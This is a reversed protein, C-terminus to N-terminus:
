RHRARYNRCAARQGDIAISRRIAFLLARAAAASGGAADRRRPPDVPSSVINLFISTALSPDGPASAAKFAAISRATLYQASSCMIETSSIGCRASVISSTSPSLSSGFVTEDRDDLPGPLERSQPAQREVGVEKRTMRNRGDDLEHPRLIEVKQDDSEHAM